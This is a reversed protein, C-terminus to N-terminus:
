YFVGAPYFTTKRGIRRVVESCGCAPPDHLPVCVKSGAELPLSTNM